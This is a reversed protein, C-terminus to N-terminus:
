VFDYRAKLSSVLFMVPRPSLCNVVVRKCGFRPLLSSEDCVCLQSYLFSYSRQVFVIMVSRESCVVCM